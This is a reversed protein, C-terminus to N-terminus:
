CCPVLWRERLPIPCGVAFWANLKRDFKRLCFQAPRTRCFDQHESLWDPDGPLPQAKVNMGPVLKGAWQPPFESQHEVQKEIQSALARQMSKQQARLADQFPDVTRLPQVKVNMGPVFNGEWRSKWNGDIPNPVSAAATRLPDAPEAFRGSIARRFFEVTRQKYEEALRDQLYARGTLELGGCEVPEWGEAGELALWPEPDRPEQLVVDGYPGHVSCTPM